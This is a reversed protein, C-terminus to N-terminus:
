PTKAEWQFDSAKAGTFNNPPNREPVTVTENRWEHLGDILRCPMESVDTVEGVVLSSVM